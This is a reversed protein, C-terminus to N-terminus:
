KDEQLKAALKQSEFKLYEVLNTPKPEPVYLKQEGTEENVIITYGTM